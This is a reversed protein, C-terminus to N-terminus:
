SDVWMVFALFQLFNSTSPQPFSKSKLFIFVQLCSCSWTERLVTCKMQYPILLNLQSPHISGVIVILSIVNCLVTRRANDTSSAMVTILKWLRLIHALDVGNFESYLSHCGIEFKYWKTCWSICVYGAVLVASYYYVVCHLYV